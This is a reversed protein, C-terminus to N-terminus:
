RPCSRQLKSQREPRTWVILVVVSVLLPRSPHHFKRVHVTMSDSINQFTSKVIDFTINGSQYLAQLVSPGGFGGGSDDPTIAGNFLSTLFYSISMQSPAYIEYICEKPVIAKSANSLNESTDWDGTFTDISVNYPIWSTDEAISYGLEILSQRQRSNLCDAPVTSVFANEGVEGFSLNAPGDLSEVLSGGSIDAKYTKVCPSLECRAAGYGKCYWTDNTAADSCGERQYSSDLLFDVPLGLIMEIYGDVGSGQMVFYTSNSEITDTPWSLAYLGSPLTTNLLTVPITQNVITGNSSYAQSVYTTNIRQLSLDESIDFCSSCYAISHYQGSFTCNGTPCHFPVSALGPNFIGGNIASQMGQVVTSYGAGLHYGMEQYVNTRPITANVEPISITCQYYRVVQQAFPDIALAALTVFAGISAVINRSRLTWLLLLSGWPGRSARDYRTLDQLPRRRKFWAWKLQSLGEATILLMAAKMAVVIIALLSNISINYPWEPLPLNQHPYVIAIIAAMAAIIILCCLTEAWWDHFVGITPKRANSPSDSLHRDQQTGSKLNGLEVNSHSSVTAGNLPKRPISFRPNQDKHTYTDGLTESFVFPEQYTENGHLSAWPSHASTLKPSGPGFFHASDDEM